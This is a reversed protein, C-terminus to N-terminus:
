SSWTRENMHATTSTLEHTQEAQRRKCTFASKYPKSHLFTYFQLFVHWGVGTDKGPFYWPCLPGIPQLGHPDCVTLCLQSVLVCVCVCMCVCVCLTYPIKTELRAPHWAYFGHQYLQNSQLSLRETRDSEKCVGTSQLGGPEETWPIRWVLIRSHAAMCGPSGPSRESGPMSAVDGANAPPTNVVSRGPFSGAPVMSYKKLHQVTHNSTQYM